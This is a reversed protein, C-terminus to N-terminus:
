RCWFVVFLCLVSCPLYVLFGLLYLSSGWFWLSETWNWLQLLSTRLPGGVVIGSLLLIPASLFITLIIGAMSLLSTLSRGGPTLISKRVQSIPQACLCMPIVLLVGLLAVAFNVASMVGLFIAAFGLTLAKIPVFDSDLLIASQLLSGLQNSLPFLISFAYLAACLTACALMTWLIIKTESSLTFLSLPIPMLSTVISWLEVLTVIQVGRIWNAPGVKNIKTTSEKDYISIPVFKTPSVLFYLFVSHHFKELLNNVSRIAGELLRGTNKLLDHSSLTNKLNVGSFIELTVADLQYDRFAGHPGTPVGLAQNWISSLLTAAGQVYESASLAFGWDPYVYGAFKGLHKVIDGITNLGPWSKIGKFSDLNLLLGQRYTALTTVVNILDLNPMQGNSGEAKLQISDFAVSDDERSFMVIFGASIAGARKFDEITVDDLWESSGEFVNGSKLNSILSTRYQLTACESALQHYEKLWADVATYAGYQSDAALWIIDKALWHAKTFLELIVLSLGLTLADGNALKELDFPTVLVIAENGDGRPARVIGVLNVGPHPLDQSYKSKNHALWGEVGYSSSMFRLPSFSRDPPWFVQYYYDVGFLDFYHFLWSRFAMYRNTSDKLISQLENAIASANLADAESFTVKASGPLLANESVHTTKALPPLLLLGVLGAVCCAISVAHAHIVLLSALRPFLRGQAYSSPQQQEM